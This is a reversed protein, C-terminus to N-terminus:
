RPLPLVLEVQLKPAEGRETKFTKMLLTVTLESIGFTHSTTIDVTSIQKPPYANVQYVRVEKIVLPEVPDSGFSSGNWEANDGARDVPSLRLRIRAEGTRESNSPFHQTCYKCSEIEIKHARVSDCIIRDQLLTEAPLEVIPEVKVRLPTSRNPSNEVNATVVPGVGVDFVLSSTVGTSVSCSNAENSEGSREAQCLLSDRIAGLRQDLADKENLSMSNEINDLYQDMSELAFKSQIESVMRDSGDHAENLTDVLQSTQRLMLPFSTLISAKCAGLTPSADTQTLSELSLLLKSARLSSARFHSALDGNDSESGALVLSPEKLLDDEVHVHLPKSSPPTSLSKDNEAPDNLLLFEDQKPPM